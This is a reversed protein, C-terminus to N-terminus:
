LTDFTPDNDRLMILQINRTLLEYLLELKNFEHVDLFIGFPRLDLPGM